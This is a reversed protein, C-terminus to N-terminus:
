EDDDQEVIDDSGIAESIPKLIEYIQQKTVDHDALWATAMDACNQRDSLLNLAMMFGLAAATNKHRAATAIDNFITDGTDNIITTADAPELYKIAEFRFRDSLTDALEDNEKNGIGFTFFDDGHKVLVVVADARTTQLMRQTLMVTRQEIEANDM